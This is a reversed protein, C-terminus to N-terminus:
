RTFFYVGRRETVAQREAEPLEPAHLTTHLHDPFRWKEM